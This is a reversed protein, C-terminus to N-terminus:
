LRRAPEHLRHPGLRDAVGFADVDVDDLHRHRDAVLAAAEDAVNRLRREVDEFVPVRLRDRM